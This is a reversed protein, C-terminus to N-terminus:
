NITLGPNVTIMDSTRYIMAERDTKSLKMSNYMDKLETLSYWGFCEYAEYFRREISLRERKTLKKTVQQNM